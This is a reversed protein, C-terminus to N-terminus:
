LTDEGCGNM